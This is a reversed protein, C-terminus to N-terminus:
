AQSLCTYLLHREFSYIVLPLPPNCIRCRQFLSTTLFLLSGRRQQRVEHRVARARAIIRVRNSRPNKFPRSSALLLLSISLPDIAEGRRTRKLGEEKYTRKKANLPTMPFCEGRMERERKSKRERKELCRLVGQKLTSSLLRLLRWTLLSSSSSPLPPTELPASIRRQLFTLCDISLDWASLCNRFM